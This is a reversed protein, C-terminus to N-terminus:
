VRGEDFTPTRQAPRSPDNRPRSDDSSAATHSASHTDAPSRSKRHHISGFPLLLCEAGHSFCRLTLKQQNPNGVCEGFVWIRKQLSCVSLGWSKASRTQRLNEYGRLFGQTRKGLLDQSM